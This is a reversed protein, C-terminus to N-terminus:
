INLNEIRSKRNTYHKLAFSYVAIGSDDNPWIITDNSTTYGVTFIKNELYGAGGYTFKKDMKSNTFGPLCIVKDGIEFKM